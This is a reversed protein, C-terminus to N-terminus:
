PLGLYSEGIRLVENGNADFAVRSAGHDVLEWAVIPKAGASLRSTARGTKMEVFNPHNHVDFFLGRAQELEPTLMASLDLYPEQRFPTGDPVPLAVLYSEPSAARREHAETAVLVERSGYPINAVIAAEQDRAFRRVSHLLGVFQVEEFTDLDLNALPVGELEIQDAILPYHEALSSAADIPAVPDEEAPVEAPSQPTETLAAREVAQGNVLEHEPSGTPGVQALEETGREIREHAGEDERLALVSAVLISLVALVLIPRM